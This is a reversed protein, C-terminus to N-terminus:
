IGNAGDTLSCWIWAKVVKDSMPHRNVPYVLCLKCFDGIQRDNLIVSM